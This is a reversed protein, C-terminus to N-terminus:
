ETNTSCSGRHGGGGRIRDEQILDFCLSAEYGAKRWILPPFFVGGSLLAPTLFCHEAWAWVTVRCVHACFCVAKMQDAVPFPDMCCCSPIFGSIYKLKPPVKCWPTTNIVHYWDCSVCMCFAFSGVDQCIWINKMERFPWHKLQM